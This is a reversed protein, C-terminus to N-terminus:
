LWELLISITTVKTVMSLYPMDGVQVKSSQRANSCNNQKKTQGMRELIPKVKASITTHLLCVIICKEILSTIVYKRTGITSNVPYICRNTKKTYSDYKNHMSGIKSQHFKDWRCKPSKSHRGYKIVTLLIISELM